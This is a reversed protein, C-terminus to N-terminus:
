PDEFKNEVRSRYEQDSFTRIPRACTSTPARTADFDLNFVMSTRERTIDYNRLEFEEPFPVSVGTEWGGDSKPTTPASSARLQDSISFAVGLRGDMFNDAFTLSGRYGYEEVVDAYIGRLSLQLLRDDQDLGSLTEIEINGGITDGPM